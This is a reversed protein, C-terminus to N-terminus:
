SGLQMQLENAVFSSITHIVAQKVTMSTLLLPALAILDQPQVQRVANVIREYLRERQVATLDNRIIDAVPRFDSVFFIFAIRM